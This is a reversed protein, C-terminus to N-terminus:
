SRAKQYPKRPKAKSKKLSLINKLRALWRPGQVSKGSSMTKLPPNVVTQATMPVSKGSPNTNSPPDVAAQIPNGSSKTNSPPDVIAQTTKPVSKGSSETKSSPDVVDQATKQIVPIVISAWSGTLDSWPSVTRLGRPTRSDSFPSSQSISGLDVPQTIVIFKYFCIDMDRDDPVPFMFPNVDSNGYGLGLTADNQLCMDVAGQEKRSPSMKSPYVADIAFSTGDFFFLYVYLDIDSKNRVTFGYRPHQNLPLSEDVFFEIPKNDGIVPLLNEGVPTLSPGDRQLKKMEISILDTVRLPSPISLQATFHAFRSIITRIRATDGVEYVHPFRSPFGISPNIKNGQEFSASRDKMTLCLHAEDRTQVAAIPVTFRPECDAKIIRTLLNSDKCHTWVNASSDQPLRAYWIHRDEDAHLFTRDLAVLLSTFAEVKSVTAIALPHHLDPLDTRFIEFTSGVTIGHLTGAHLVLRDEKPEHRCLIMSSDAPKEWSDFLRRLTHKGELQPTQYPPMVLRHMLSRYTLESVPNKEMTELLAQTFFGQGYEEWAMEHRNCAALLVHSDWLSGSFGSTIKKGSSGLFMATPDSKASLEPPNPTRRPTVNLVGPLKIARNTSTARCCDLILTINNGKAAALERLLENIMRDPIGEVAKDNIDLIGIDAPCLIEIEDDSTQWDTWENPKPAVAGHGAYYIIIASKGPSIRQDHILSRFGDIIGKRTAQDNRLSIIHERPTRLRDLLFKEFRNADAVAAKLNDYEEHKYKDIGIILAFTSRTKIPTLSEDCLATGKSVSGNKTPLDILKHFSSSSNERTSNAFGGDFPNQDDKVVGVWKGDRAPTVHAGSFDDLIYENILAPPDLAKYLNSSIDVSTSTQKNAHSYSIDLNSDTKPLKNFGPNVSRRRRSNPIERTTTVQGIGLGQFSPDSRVPSSDGHSFTTQSALTGLNSNCHSQAYIDQQADWHYFMSDDSGTSGTALCKPSISPLQSPRSSCASSRFTSSRYKDYGAVLYLTDNRIKQHQIFSNLFKYWSRANAAACDELLHLFKLDYRKGGDNEKGIAVQSASCTYEYERGAEFQPIRNPQMSSQYGFSTIPVSKKKPTELRKEVVPEPIDTLPVFDPPVRCSNFPDGAGMCVNFLYEFGGDDILHGLDGVRTRGKPRTHPTNSSDNGPLWYQYCLTFLLQDLVRQKAM